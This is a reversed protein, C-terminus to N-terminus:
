RLAKSFSRPMRKGYQNEGHPELGLLKMGVMIDGAQMRNRQDGLRRGRSPNTLLFQEM